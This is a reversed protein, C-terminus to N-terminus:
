FLQVKKADIVAMTAYLGGLMACLAQVVVQGLCHCLHRTHPEHIVSPLFPSAWPVRLYTHAM